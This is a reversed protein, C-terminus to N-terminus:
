IRDDCIWWEREGLLEHRERKHARWQHDHKQPACEHFGFPAGVDKLISAKCPNMDEGLPQWHHMASTPFATFCIRSHCEAPHNPIAFMAPRRGDITKGPISVIASILTALIVAARLCRSRKVRRQRLM